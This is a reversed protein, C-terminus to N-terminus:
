LNIGQFLDVGDYHFLGPPISDIVGRVAENREEESMMGERQMSDLAELLRGSADLIDKLEMPRQAQCEIVDCMVRALQPPLIQHFFIKAEEVNKPKQVSTLIQNIMRPNFM